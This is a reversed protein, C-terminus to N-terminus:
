QSGRISLPVRKRKRKAAQLYLTGVKEKRERSLRKNHTDACQKQCCQRDLRQAWFLNECIACQRIRRIDLGLVLAIVPDEDKHLIGHQDVYLDVLLRNFDLLGANELRRETNDFKRGADALKVMLRKINRIRYYYDFWKNAYHFLLNTLEAAIATSKDLASSHEAPLRPVREEALVIEKLANNCSDLEKSLKSLEAWHEVKAILGAAVTFGKSDLSKVMGVAASFYDHKYKVEKEKFDAPEPHSRFLRLPRVPTDIDLMEGVPPFQNVIAFVVDLGPDCAARIRSRSLQIQSDTKSAMNSVCM